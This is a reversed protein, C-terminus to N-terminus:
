STKGPVTGANSNSGAICILQISATMDSPSANGLYLSKGLSNSAKPPVPSNIGYDSPFRLRIASPNPQRSQGVDFRGGSNAEAAANRKIAKSVFHSKAEYRVLSTGDM